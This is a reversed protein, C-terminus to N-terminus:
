FEFMSLCKSFKASCFQNQPHFVYDPGPPSCEESLNVATLILLFRGVVKFITM